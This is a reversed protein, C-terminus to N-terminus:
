NEGRSAFADATLELEDRIDALRSAVSRNWGLLRVAAGLMLAACRLLNAGAETNEDAKM